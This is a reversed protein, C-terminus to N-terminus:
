RTSKASMAAEILKRKAFGAKVFDLDMSVYKEQSYISVCSGGSLVVNINRRKFEAGIFAALELRTM